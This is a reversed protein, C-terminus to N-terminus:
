ALTRTTRLSLGASVINKKPKASFNLKWDVNNDAREPDDAVYGLRDIVCVILLKTAM